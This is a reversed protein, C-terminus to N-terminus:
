GQHDMLLSKLLYLEELAERPTLSDPNIESLKKEVASIKPKAPSPAPIRFLPLELTATKSKNEELLSLVQEARAIVDAPLGALQAVHIGYSRDATGKAVQHLFIVDNKWEKIQMTYCALKPLERSLNTLEHYHTAFLGRCKITNHLYELAAWAISLGDYTATGRGIEDLIVLSRSTSQKLIASTEVMEMMFTSQGKALDDSAGVRSFVKDIVGIVASKAPVYFGAQAMIAILANQRLFTSKGAMNPGTLLWLMESNKLACDNPAFTAHNRALAHEVVPHRGGCIDFDQGANITPRVYNRDVALTAMSTAVDLEALARAIYSIHDALSLVSQCFQSFYNEELALSKEAASSIDRELEALEPTTFRMANAMTQRHVFPNDNDSIKVMMSDARKAPVEIFYGLINNHTIKLSDIGTMRVYKGQLVAIHKRAEAKLGRLKDLQPCYGEAIFGGDRALMPPTDLLASCLLDRMAEVDDSLSLADAIRVLSSKGLGCELIQARLSSAYGLGDRISALDRPGGRMLSLRAISREMDAVLKLTTRLNSTLSFQGILTEIDNHRHSIEGVDRLPATLRSQLMRAGAGTLTMDITDLLSGSKEGSQTRILELSRLTSPDIDMVSSSSIQRPSLLHPLQGKQTADIYSILAGSAAIEARSFAGLSPLVIEGFLSELRARGKESDFNQTPQHTIGRVASFLTEDVSDSVLVESADLRILTSLCQDRSVTQVLFEGTSVDAIAIGCQGGLDIMAALYNNSRANLLTDEILTGPTIIRVVERNVLAKSGGRRKAQEPTETQECIAVKHGARILRALYPECSHFPVGCMSIEDGQTKGRKTLTIDLVASAKVADDFFLEYFDGMRYFLLCDPHTTKVAMYQAMMPTHGLAIFDDPSQPPSAPKLVTQSM